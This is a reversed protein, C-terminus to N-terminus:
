EPSIVGKGMVKLLSRRLVSLRLGQQSDIKTGLRAVIRIVISVSSVPLQLRATVM